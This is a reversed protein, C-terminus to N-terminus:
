KLIWKTGEMYFLFAGYFLRSKKTKFHKMNYLIGNNEEKLLKDYYTSFQLFFYSASLM